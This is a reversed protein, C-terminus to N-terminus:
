NIGLSNNDIKIACFIFVNMCWHLVHDFNLWRCLMQKMSLFNLTGGM